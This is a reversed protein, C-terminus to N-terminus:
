ASSRRVQLGLHHEANAFREVEEDYMEQLLEKKNICNELEPDEKFLRRKVHLRFQKEFDEHWESNFVIYTLADFVRNVQQKTIRLASRVEEQKETTYHSFDFDYDQPKRSMYPKNAYANLPLIDHFLGSNYVLITDYTCRMKQFGKSPSEVTVDLVDLDDKAHKYVQELLRTGHGKHQAFPFVMAQAIRLRNTTKGQFFASFRYATFYGLIQAHRKPRSNRRLAVFVTWKPDSVDIKSAGDIMWMAITELRRHYSMWEPSQSIQWRRIEEKGHVSMQVGHNRMASIIGDTDSEQNLVCEYVKNVTLEAEGENAESCVRYFLVHTDAPVAKALSGLIDDCADDSLKNKYSVLVKAFMNPHEYVVNIKLGQFGVITDHFMQHWFLPSFTDLMQPQTNAWVSRVFEATDPLEEALKGQVLHIQIAEKAETQYDPYIGKIRNRAAQKASDRGENSTGDQQQQQISKLLDQGSKGILRGLSHLMNQTETDEAALDSNVDNSKPDSEAKQHKKTHGDNKQATQTTSAEDNLSAGSANNNSSDQLPRKNAGRTTRGSQEAM